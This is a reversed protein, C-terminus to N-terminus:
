NAIILSPANQMVIVALLSVTTGGDVNGAMIRIRVKGWVCVCVCGYVCVCVCVSM